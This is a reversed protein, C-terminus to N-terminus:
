TSRSGSAARPGRKPPSRLPRVAAGLFALFVPRDAPRRHAVARRGRAARHRLSSTPPRGRRRDVGLRPLPSRHRAGGEVDARGHGRHRVRNRGGRITPSSRPRSASRGATGRAGGSCRSRRRQRGAAGGEPSETSGDRRRRSIASRAPAARPAAAHADAARRRHQPGRVRPAGPAPVSRASSTGRRPRRGRPARVPRMRAREARSTVSGGLGCRRRSRRRAAASRRWWRRGCVVAVLWASPGRVAM